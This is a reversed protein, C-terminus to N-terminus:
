ATSGNPGADVRPPFLPPRECAGRDVHLWREVCQGDRVSWAEFVALSLRAGGPEGGAPSRRTGTATLRAMLHDGEVVLDEIILHVDPVAELCRALGQRTAELGVTRGPATQVVDRALFQDLDALRRRNVVSEIFRCYLTALDPTAM